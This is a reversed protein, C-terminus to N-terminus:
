LIDYRNQISTPLLIFKFPKIGHVKNQVVCINSLGCVMGTFYCVRSHLFLIPFFIFFEGFPTSNFISNTSYRFYIRNIEM